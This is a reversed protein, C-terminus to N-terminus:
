DEDEFEDPKFYDMWWERREHYRPMDEEPSNYSGLKLINYLEERDKDTVAFKYIRITKPDYDYWEVERM